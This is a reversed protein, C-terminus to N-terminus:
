IASSLAIAFAAMGGITITLNAGLSRPESLANRERPIYCDWFNDSSWQLSLRVTLPALVAAWVSGMLRPLVRLNRISWGPAADGRATTAHHVRANARWFEGLMSGALASVVRLDRPLPLENVTAILSGRWGVSIVLAFTALLAGVFAVSPMATVVACRGLAAGGFQGSCIAGRVIISFLTFVLMSLGAVAAFRRVIGRAVIPALTGALVAILAREGATSALIAAGWLPLYVIPFFRIPLL